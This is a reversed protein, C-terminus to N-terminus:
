QNLMYYSKFFKGPFNSVAANAAARCHDQSMYKVNFDANLIKSTWEKASKYVGDYVVEAESKCFFGFFPVFQYVIYNDTSRRVPVVTGLLGLKYQEKTLSFTVDISCNLSNNTSTQQEIAKDLFSMFRKTTFTRWLANHSDDESNESVLHEGYNLVIIKEDSVIGDYQEKSM